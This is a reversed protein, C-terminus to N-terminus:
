LFMCFSEPRLEHNPIGALDSLCKTLSKKSYSVPFGKRLHTEKQNCIIFCFIMSILVELIKVSGQECARHKCVFPFLKDGDTLMLMEKPNVATYQKDLDPQYNGWGPIFEPPM